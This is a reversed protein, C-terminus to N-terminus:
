GWLEGVEYGFQEIRQEPSGTVQRIPVRGSYKHLERRIRFDIDDRFETNTSRVGDSVLDFEPSIYVLLDHRPTYKEAYDKVFETVHSYDFPKLEDNYEAYVQYDILSRDSVFEDYRNFNEVYMCTASPAFEPGTDENIPFGRQELDRVLENITTAGHQEKLDNVFTSKGVGHSGVVGIKKNKLLKQIDKM